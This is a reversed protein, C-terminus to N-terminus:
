KMRDRRIVAVTGVLERQFLESATQNYELGQLLGEENALGIHGASFLGPVVEIYGEVAAQLEELTYAEGDKPEMKHIEGTPDICIDSEAFIRPDLPTM